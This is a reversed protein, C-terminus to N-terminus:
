FLSTQEGLTLGELELLKRKMPLGYAYGTLTGDSGIVRHCACLIPLPNTHNALGVARYAKPHGIAEAITKYTVLTGYPIDALYRWVAQMFPTGRSLDLPLTFTKRIGNFYESLEMEARDLLEIKEATQPIESTGIPAILQDPSDLEFEIASIGASTATITMIGFPSHSIRTAM